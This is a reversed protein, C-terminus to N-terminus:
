SGMQIVIRGARRKIWSTFVPRLLLTPRTQGAMIRGRATIQKHQQRTVTEPRLGHLCVVPNSKVKPNRRGVSKYLPPFEHVHPRHTCLHTSPLESHQSKPHTFIPINIRHSTFSFTTYTRPHSISKLFTSYIILYQLSYGNNSYSLPKIFCHVM